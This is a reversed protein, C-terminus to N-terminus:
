GGTWIGLDSSDSTLSELTEGPFFLMREDKELVDMGYRTVVVLVSQVVRRPFMVLCKISGDEPKDWKWSEEKSM